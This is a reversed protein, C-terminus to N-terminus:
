ATFHAIILDVFFWFRLIFEHQFKFFCKGYDRVSYLQLGVPLTKEFKLMLKDETKQKKNIQNYCM